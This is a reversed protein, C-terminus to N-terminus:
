FHSCSSMDAAEMKLLSKGGHRDRNAVLYDVLFMQYIYQEWGYRVAFELPSEDDRKELDYLLDFRVKQEGPKRFNESSCIWTEIRKKGICIEAHILRYQLHLIKLANM